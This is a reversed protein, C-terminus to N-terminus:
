AVRVTIKATSQVTKNQDSYFFIFQKMSFMAARKQSINEKGFTRAFNRKHNKCM